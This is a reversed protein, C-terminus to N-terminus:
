PDRFNLLPDSIHKEVALGEMPLAPGYSDRGGVASLM